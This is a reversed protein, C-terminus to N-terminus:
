KHLMLCPQAPATHGWLYAKLAGCTPKCGEAFSLVGIKLGLGWGGYEINFGPSPPFLYLDLSSLFCTRM